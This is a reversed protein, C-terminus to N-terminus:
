LQGASTLGRLDNMKRNVEARTLVSHLRVGNAFASARLFMGVGDDTNVFIINRGITDRVYTFVDAMIRGIDQSECEQIGLTDLVFMSPCREADGLKDM